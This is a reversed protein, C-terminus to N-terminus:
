LMDVRLRQLNAFLPLELRHHLWGPPLLYSARSFMWNRLVSGSVGLPELVEHVARFLLEGYRTADILAPDFPGPMDWAHVGPRTTTYIFQIRQGMRVNRGTSQLQRAARAAPSPLRYEDLERSLTQTVLLEGPFVRKGNLASLREQVVGVVEPLLRTLRRPDTEKSLIQLVQLQAEAVFPPTDERRCALGRIKYEGDAK